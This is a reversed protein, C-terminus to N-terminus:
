YSLIYSISAFVSFDTLNKLYKSYYRYKSGTSMSLISEDLMRVLPPNCSQKM